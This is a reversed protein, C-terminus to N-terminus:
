NTITLDSGSEKEATPIRCFADIESPSEFKQKDFNYVFSHDWHLCGIAKKADINSGQPDTELPLDNTKFLCTTFKLSSNRVSTVKGNMIEEISAPGPLDTAFVTAHSPRAVAWFTAKEADLNKPNKNWRLIAHRGRKPYSTYIPDTSDSDIEPTVHKFPRMKGFHERHTDSWKIVEGNKLDSDFVCGEIWQVLAYDEIQATKETTYLARIDTMFFPKKSDQKPPVVRKKEEILRFEKLACDPGCNELNLTAKTDKSSIVKIEALVSNSILFTLMM